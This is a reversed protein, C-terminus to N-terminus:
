TRRRRRPLHLLQKSENLAGSMAIKSIRTTRHAESLTLRAAPESAVLGVLEDFPKLPRLEIWPRWDGDLIPPARGM